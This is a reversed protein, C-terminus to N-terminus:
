TARVGASSTAVAAVGLVGRVGICIALVGTPSFAFVGLVGLVISPDHFSSSFDYVLLELSAVFVVSA